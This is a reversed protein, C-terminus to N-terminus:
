IQRKKWKGRRFLAIAVITLVTEAAPVAFFVGNPGWADALIVALPIQIAWYCALNVLLPTRTDGAGNFSQIM